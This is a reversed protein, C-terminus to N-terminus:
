NRRADGGFGVYGLDTSEAAALIHKHNGVPRSFLSPNDPPRYGSDARYQSTVHFISDAGFMSDTREVIDCDSTIMSDVSSRM